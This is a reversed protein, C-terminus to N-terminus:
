PTTVRDGSPRETGVQLVYSVASLGVDRAAATVDDRVLREIEQRTTAVGFWYDASEQPDYDSTKPDGVFREDILRTREAEDNAFSRELTFSPWLTQWGVDQLKARFSVRVQPDANPADFALLVHLVM